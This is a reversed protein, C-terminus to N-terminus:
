NKMTGTSMKWIEDAKKYLKLYLDPDEGPAEKPYILDYKNNPIRKKVLNHDFRVRDCHEKATLRRPCGAKLAVLDEQRM